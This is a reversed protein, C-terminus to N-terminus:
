NSTQLLKIPGSSGQPIGSYKRLMTYPDSLPLLLIISSVVFRPYEHNISSSLLINCSSLNPLSILFSLLSSEHLMCPLSCLYLCNWESFRFFIYWRISRPTSSFIINFHIKFVTHNNPSCEVVYIPHIACIASSLFCVPKPHHFM